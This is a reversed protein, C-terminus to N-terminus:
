GNTNGGDIENIIQQVEEVAEKVALELKAIMEEDRKVHIILLQLREPMRPDYSVFDCWQRGTCVMQWQMQYM